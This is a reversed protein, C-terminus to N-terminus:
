TYINPIDVAPGAVETWISRINEVAPIITDLICVLLQRYKSVTSM